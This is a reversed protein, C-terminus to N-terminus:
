HIPNSNWLLNRNKISEKINERNWKNQIYQIQNALDAYVHNQDYHMKVNRNDDRSSERGDFHEGNLGRRGYVQDNVRGGSAVGPGTFKKM